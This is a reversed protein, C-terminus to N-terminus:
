FTKILDLEAKVSNCNILFNMFLTLTTFSRKQMMAYRFSRCITHFRKKSLM